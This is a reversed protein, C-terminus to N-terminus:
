ENLMEVALGYAKKTAAAQAPGARPKKDWGHSCQQMRECVVHSGPVSKLSEALREAELCLSDGSATIMLVRRPFRELPALAPSIRPDKRDLGPVYCSSFFRLVRNPLPRGTSDPAIKETIPRSLDVSPYIALVSRFTDQPFAHGDDPRGLVYKVADETDNLAAPFPHEPALRYSVDIVDYKTRSSIFRCFEDDSGHLPLMFGSGHFNVLVPSPSTKDSSRYIHVKITRGKDRCPIHRVEDPHANRRGALHFFTLVVARLLTALAKTYLYRLYSMAM